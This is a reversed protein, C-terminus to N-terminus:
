RLKEVLDMTQASPPKSESIPAADMLKAVQRSANRRINRRYIPVQLESECLRCDCTFNWTKQLTGHFEDIGDEPAKYQILIEGGQAIDKTARLVLLDGIFSRSANGICDHNIASATLWIGASTEQDASGEAASTVAPCSFGNLDLRAQICRVDIPVMGDVFDLTPQATRGGDYLELFKQTLTPNHQLRQVVRFFRTVNVGTSITEQDLDVITRSTGSEATSHHFAKECMILDGPRMAKTVFLGRGHRATQVKVNATFSACGLSFTGSLAAQTLKELDYHGTEEEIRRQALLKALQQISEDCPAAKLACKVFVDADTFRELRYAASAARYYAKADLVNGEEEDTVAAKADCLAAEYRGARLNAESRNRLIDRKLADDAVRELARTYVRIAKDLRGRRIMENGAEKTSELTRNSPVLDSPHVVQIMPRGDVSRTYFPEKVAWRTLQHLTVGFGHEVHMALRAVSGANDRVAAIIAGHKSDRRFSWLYLVRGRHVTELTLQDITIPDLGEAPVICPLPLQPHLVTTLTNANYEAKELEDCSAKTAPRHRNLNAAHQLRKQEELIIAAETQDM